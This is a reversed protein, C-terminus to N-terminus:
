FSATAERPRGSPPTALEHVKMKEAQLRAGQVLPQEKLPPHSIVKETALSSIYLIIGMYQGGLSLLM